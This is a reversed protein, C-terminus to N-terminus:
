NAAPSELPPLGSSLEATKTAKDYICIYRSVVEGTVTALATGYHESGFPDVEVTVVGDETVLARCAAEVDLRFQEWAEDSAAAAPTALLALLILARM